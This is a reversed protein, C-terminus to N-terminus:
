LAGFRTKYCQLEFDTKRLLTELLIIKDEYLKRILLSNTDSTYPNDKKNFYKIEEFNIIDEIGVELVIAIQELRGIALNVKTKEIKSYAAQSIGLQEALYEQTYNKLERIRKIKPNQRM